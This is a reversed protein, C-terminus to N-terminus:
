GIVLQLSREWCATLEDLKVLMAEGASVLSAIDGGQLATVMDTWCVEARSQSEAIASSSLPLMSLEALTDGFEAVLVAAKAQLDNGEIHAAEVGLRMFLGLKVVRQMRMRQRGCLNVVRVISSNGALQLGTTLVEARALASEAAGDAQALSGVDLRQELCAVLDTWAARAAELHERSADPLPLRSLIELIEQARKCAEKQVRRAGPPDIRVLRQAAAAVCRQSLWRLQGARNVADAWAAADVVTRAVAALPRRSQMAGTRLLGFADGETMAQTAMLLGKAQAVLRQEAIQNQLEDIRRRQGQERRHVEAAFALVSEWDHATMGNASPLWYHALPERFVPVSPGSNERGGYGIRVLPVDWPISALVPAAACGAVEHGANCIVARPAGEVDLRGLETGSALHLVQM